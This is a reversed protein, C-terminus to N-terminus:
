NEGCCPCRERFACIDYESATSSKTRGPAIDNRRPIFCYRFCPTNTSHVALNEDDSTGFNILESQRMCVANVESAYIRRQRYRTIRIEGIIFEHPPAIHYRGFRM